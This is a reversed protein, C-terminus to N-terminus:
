NRSMFLDENTPLDNIFDTYPHAVAFYQLDGQSNLSLTLRTLTLAGYNYVLDIFQSSRQDSPRIDLIDNGTGCTLVSVRAQTSLIPTQGFGFNITANATDLSSNKLLSSNM